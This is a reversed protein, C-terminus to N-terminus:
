NTWMNLNYNAAVSFVDTTLVEIVRIWEATGTVGTNVAIPTGSKSEARTWSYPTQDVPAGVNAVTTVNITSGSTIDPFRYLDEWHADTALVAGPIIPRQLVVSLSGAGVPVTNLTFAFFLRDFIDIPQGDIHTVDTVVAGGVAIISDRASLLTKRCIIGM